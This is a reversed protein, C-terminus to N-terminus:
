QLFIDEQPIGAGYRTNTMYDYLVDGPQTLTNNLKFKFDPIETIEDEPSYTIEVIAFVLNTAFHHSTWEPFINRADYTVSPNFGDPYSQNRVGNNYFWIKIKNNIRPDTNNQVDSLFSATIGDSQFNIKFGDMYVEDLTIVSPTGDLLTGTVECLSLAIYLPGLPNPNALTPRPLRADIIDGGVVASGYVVPIKKQPNPDLQIRVGPDPKDKVADQTKTITNFVKKSTIQGIFTQVASISANVQNFTESIRNSLNSLKELFNM